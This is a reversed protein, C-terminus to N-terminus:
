GNAGSALDKFLLNLDKYGKLKGSKKEEDGQKIALKTEENPEYSENYYFNSFSLLATEVYNNVSRNEKGSMEKIHEYLAPNIRLSITKRLAATEMNINIQNCFYIM